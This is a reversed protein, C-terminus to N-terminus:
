CGCTGKGILNQVAGGNSATIVVDYDSTECDSGKCSQAAAASYDVRVKLDRVSYVRTRRKQALEAQSWEEPSEAKLLLDRGNINIWGRGNYDAVFVSRASDTRGSTTTTSVGCGCGDSVGPNVLSGIRIPEGRSLGGSMPSSAQAPNKAKPTGDAQGRKADTRPPPQNTKTVFHQVNFVALLAVVALGVGSVILRRKAAAAGADSAILKGSVGMVLALVHFTTPLLPLVSFGPVMDFIGALVPFITLWPKGIHGGRMWVVVVILYLATLHFWFQPLAGAGLAAGAVNLVSSNSGFYPLVYTPVALVLYVLVYVVGSTLVGTPVSPTGQSVGKPEILAVLDSAPDKSASGAERQGCAPTSNGAASDVVLRNGCGPCFKSGEAVKVGCQDCFSLPPM